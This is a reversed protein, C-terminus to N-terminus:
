GVPVGNLIFNHFRTTNFNGYLKKAISVTSLAVEGAVDGVEPDTNGHLEFQRAVFRDHVAVAITQHDLRHTLASQDGQEFRHLRQFVAKCRRPPM